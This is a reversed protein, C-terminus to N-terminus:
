RLLLLVFVSYQTEELVCIELPKQDSWLRHSYMHLHLFYAQKNLSGDGEWRTRSSTGVEAKEKGTKHWEGEALVVSIIWV